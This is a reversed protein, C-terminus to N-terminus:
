KKKEKLWSEMERKFEEHTIYHGKRMEEISENLAARLEENIVEKKEPDFLSREYISFQWMWEKGDKTNTFYVDVEHGDFFEPKDVRCAIVGKGSEKDHAEMNRAITRDIYTHADDFSKCVTQIDLGSAANEDDFPNHGIYIVMTVIYYSEKMNM